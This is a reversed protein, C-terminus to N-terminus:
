RQQYRAMWTLRSSSRRKSTTPASPSTNQSAVYHEGKLHLVTKNGVTKEVAGDIDITHLRTLTIVDQLAPSKITNAFLRTFDQNQNFDHDLGLSM